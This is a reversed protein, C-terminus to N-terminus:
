LIGRAGGDRAHPAREAAAERQEVQVGALAPPAHWRVDWYTATGCMRTWCNGNTM